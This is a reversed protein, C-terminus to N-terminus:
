EGLLLATVREVERRLDSFDVTDSTDYVTGRVLFLFKGKPVFVHLSHSSLDLKSGYFDSVEQYVISDDGGFGFYGNLSDVGEYDVTYTTYLSTNKYACGANEYGRRVLEMFKNVEDASGYEYVGEQIFAFGYDSSKHAQFALSKSGALSDALQEDEECEEGSYFSSEGSNFNRASDNNEMPFEFSASTAIRKQAEEETISFTAFTGAIVLAATTVLALAGAGFLLRIPMRLNSLYSSKARLEEPPATRAHASLSNLKSVNVQVSAGCNGCFAADEANNGCNPCFM